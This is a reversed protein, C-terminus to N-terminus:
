IKMSYDISRNEIATDYFCICAAFSIDFLITVFGSSRPIGGTLSDQAGRDEVGDDSFNLEDHPREKTNCRKYLTESPTIQRRARALWWADRHM